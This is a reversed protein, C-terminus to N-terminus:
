SEGSEGCGDPFAIKRIEKTIREAAAHYNNVNMINNQSININTGNKKEGLQDLLLKIHPESGEISMQTLVCFVVEICTKGKINWGKAIMEKMIKEPCPSCACAVGIAHLDFQSPDTPDAVECLDTEQSVLDQKEPKVPKTIKTAKGKATKNKDSTRKAM